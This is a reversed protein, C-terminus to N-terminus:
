KPIGRQKIISSLFLVIIVFIILYYIAPNSQIALSVYGILPIKFIVIGVVDKEDVLWYDPVLNNDGKTRFKLNGQDNFIEIVRHVIYIEKGGSIRKYVIIDNVKIEKPNIGKVIIVDGINLTPKMSGSEVVAIPVESGLIVKLGISFFLYLAVVIIALYIAEKINIKSALKEKKV